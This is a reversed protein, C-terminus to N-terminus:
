GLCIYFSFVVYAVEFAPWPSKFYTKPSNIASDLLIYVNYMTLFIAIVPVVQMNFAMSQDISEDQLLTEKFNALKKMQENMM